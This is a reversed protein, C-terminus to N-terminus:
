PSKSSKNIPSDSGVAADALRRKKTAAANASKSATGQASNPRRKSATKDKITQTGRDRTKVTTSRNNTKLLSAHTAKKSVVDCSRQGDEMVFFGNQM